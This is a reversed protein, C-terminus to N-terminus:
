EGQMCFSAFVYLASQSLDEAPDRARQTKHKMGVSWTVHLAIILIMTIVLLTLWLRFTFPSLIFGRIEADVEPQRVHLIM